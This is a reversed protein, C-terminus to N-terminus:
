RRALLEAAAQARESLGNDPHSLLETLEARMRPDWFSRIVAAIEKAAVDVPLHPFQASIDNALRAVRAPAMGHGVGMEHGLIDESM